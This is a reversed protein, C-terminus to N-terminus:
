SSRPRRRASLLMNQFANDTRWIDGALVSIVGRRLNKDTPHGFFFHDAFNTNYFRHVLAGFTDYAREMHASLPRMLDVRAESGHELAPSLLDALREAGAMALAVGSSFVPDLFCAADGVCAFRAGHARQNRFSFNSVIRPASRATGTAWNRLLTSNDIHEGLAEVRIGPTKSVIGVSLRRGPLPIAWAWGHASATIRIDNGPGIERITADSLGDLHCFVAGKGFDRYPVATKNRRALLRDQGTADVLFRGSERGSGTVVQVTDACIRTEVVSQGHRVEAGATVARDRLLTDFTSREVHWAHRPPGPLAESFSFAARRNTAECVFEAGRKFLFSQEDHVLGLRAHLPTSVPLLSEGIHFRPFTAKELVLVRHGREALLAATTSGAPGAGVIVVDWRTAKM